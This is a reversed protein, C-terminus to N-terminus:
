GAASWPGLVLSWAFHQEGLGREQEYEQWYKQREVLQRPQGVAVPKQERRADDEVRAAGAAEGPEDERQDDEVVDGSTEDVAMTSGREAPPEQGARDRDVQQHQGHELVRVERDAIEVSRQREDADLWKRQGANQKRDPDREEGKM